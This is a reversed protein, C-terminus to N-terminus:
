EYIPLLHLIPGINTYISFINYRAGYSNAGPVSQNRVAQLASQVFPNGVYEPVVVVSVTTSVQVEQGASKGTASVRLDFSKTRGSTVLGQLSKAIKLAGNRSNLRFYPSPDALRFTVSANRFADSKILNLHLIVRGRPIVEPIIVSHAPSSFRFAYFTYFLYTFAPKCTRRLCLCLRLCLGRTFRSSALVLALAREKEQAQAPTTGTWAHSISASTSLGPKWIIAEITGITRLVHSSRPSWVSVSDDAIRAISAIAM